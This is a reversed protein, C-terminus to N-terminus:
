NIIYRKNKFIKMIKKFVEPHLVEEFELKAGPYVFVYYLNNILEFEYLLRNTKKSFIYTKETM